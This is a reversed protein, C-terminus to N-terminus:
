SPSLRRLVLISMVGENAGVKAKGSDVARGGGLPGRVGGYGGGAESSDSVSILEGAKSGIEGFFDHLASLLSLRLLCFFSSLFICLLRLEDALRGM